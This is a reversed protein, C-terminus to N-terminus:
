KNKEQKKGENPKDIEKLLEEPIEFDEDENNPPEIEEENLNIKIIKVSGKDIINKNDKTKDGKIDNVAENIVNSLKESIFSSFLKKTIQNYNILGDM